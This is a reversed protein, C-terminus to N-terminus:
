FLKTAAMWGKQAATGAEVEFVQNALGQPVVTVPEGGPAPAPVSPFVETVVGDRLYIIDLPFRMGKMWFPYIGPAEFLFLMGTGPPLGKRGGLGQRREGEEDAIEVTFNGGPLALVRQPLPPQGGAVSPLRGMRWVVISVGALVAVLAVSVARKM